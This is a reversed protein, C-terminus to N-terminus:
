DYFMIQFHDCDSVHHPNFQKKWQSDLIKHIAARTEGNAVIGGHVEESSMSFAEVKELTINKINEEDYTDEPNYYEFGKLIKGDYAWIVRQLEPGRGDHHFKDELIPEIMNKKPM